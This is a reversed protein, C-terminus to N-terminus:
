ENTLKLFLVLYILFFPFLGHFIAIWFFQFPINRWDIHVGGEVAYILVVPIISLFFTSCLLVGAKKISENVLIVPLLCILITVRTFGPFDFYRLLHPLKDIWDPIFVVKSFLFLDSYHVLLCSLLIFSAIYIIITKVKTNAIM